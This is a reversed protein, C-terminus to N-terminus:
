TGVWALQRDARKEVKMSVCERKGLLLGSIRSQRLLLLLLKPPAAAAAATSMKLSRSFVLWLNLEAAPAATETRDKRRAGSSTAAQQEMWTLSAQCSSPTINPQVLGEYM